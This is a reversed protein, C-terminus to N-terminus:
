EQIETEIIKEATRFGYQTLISVYFRANQLPRVRPNKQIFESWLEITGSENQASVFLIASRNYIPKRLFNAPRDMRVLIYQGDGDNVVNLRCKNLSLVINPDSISFDTYDKSFRSGNEYMDDVRNMNGNAKIFLQYGSIYVNDGFKNKFTVLKAAEVWTVRNEISMTNWYGRVTAMSLLGKNQLLKNKSAGRNKNMIVLSGKQRKFTTGGISGAMDTIFSGLKAVAM